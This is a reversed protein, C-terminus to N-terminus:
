VRLVDQGAARDFEPLPDPDSTFLGGAAALLSLNEEATGMEMELVTMRKFLKGIAHEATLGMGGHLQISQQGIFRGSRCAQAKAALLSKRRAVADTGAVSLAAYTSMALALQLEAYMDAARHQLAQFERLARGFQRRTGLHAITLDLMAEMTGAAQAVLAADAIDLAHDVIAAADGGQLLDAEANLLVSDFVLDSVSSGDHRVGHRATVGAQPLDVLFLALRGCGGAAPGTRASVIVKDASQADSVHFKGGRLRWGGDVAEARTSIADTGHAGGSERHAFAVRTRGSAIDQVLDGLAPVDLLAVVGAGMAATGFHGGDNLTRGIALHVLMSEVPGGDGQRAGFPLALLGLEAMGAHIDTAEDLRGDLRSRDAFFRDVSDRFM